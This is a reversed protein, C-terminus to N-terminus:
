CPLDDLRFIVDEDWSVDSMVRIICQPISSLTNLEVKFAPPKQPVFFQVDLYINKGRALEIKGDPYHCPRVFFM